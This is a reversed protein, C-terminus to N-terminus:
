KSQEKCVKTYEEELIDIEDQLLKIKMRYAAGIDWCSKCYPNEYDGTSYEIHHVHDVCLDKGCECCYYRSHHSPIEKGCIDCARMTVEKKIIQEKRIVM